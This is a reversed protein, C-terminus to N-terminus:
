AKQLHNTNTSSYVTQYSTTALNMLGYSPLPSHLFSPKLFKCYIIRYREVPTSERLWWVITAYNLLILFTNSQLLVYFVKSGHNEPWLLAMKLRRYQRVKKWVDAGVFSKKFLKEDCGCPQIQVENLVLYKHDFALLTQGFCRRVFTYISVM